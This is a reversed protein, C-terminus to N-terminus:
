YGLREREVGAAQMCLDGHLSGVVGRAAEVHMDEQFVAASFDLAGEFGTAERKTQGFSGGREFDLVRGPQLEVQEGVTKHVAVSEEL